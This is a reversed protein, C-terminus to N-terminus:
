GPAFLQFFKPFTGVFGGAILVASLTLIPAWSFSRRWMVPALITWVIVYALVAFLTKGSLPGVSTDLQLFDHVSESAENWVTLVGLALSGAGSALLAAAAPGNPKEVIELQEAHWAVEDVSTGGERRIRITVM